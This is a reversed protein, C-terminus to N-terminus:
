SDLIKSEWDLAEVYLAPIEDEKLSLKEAYLSLSKWDGKEYSLIANNIFYLTNEKGLLAEKIDEAIPLDILAKEMPMNLLADINSFMGMIFVESARHHLNIKRAISEGFRARIIALDMLAESNKDVISRLTVLMIWKILEKKGMLVLAQRISQINYKLGFAASNIFKLLKYSLSVDKKIVEEISDFDDSDDYMFKIIEFNYVKNVPMEKSSIIAPKSFFYGQFYSYGLSVAENFDEITEVKEALFKVKKNKVRNIVNAREKGKTILFDVKIIDVLEMLSKYEPKFVFDDLALKYGAAKLRKCCEVFDRTPNVTELIEIIVKDQPLLLPTGRLILNETFNIFAKKNNTLNSLGILTFSNTIVDLTAKDGDIGSYYNNENNRFLLEYFVVKKNTNLIPQRAM